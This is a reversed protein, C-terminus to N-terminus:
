STVEEPWALAVPRLAQFDVQTYVFTSNIHRHGFVDAIEKLSHGEALKQTALGHRFARAGLGAEDLGVARLRRKVVMSVADSDTLPPYPAHCALFVQPHVSQARGHKLYAVLSEGVPAMLPLVSQKGRKHARFVVRDRAWDLDDLRLGVVQGARVGYTHLLQLIAYDRLGLPTDREVAELVSQAQDPTLARPPRALSYCRFSPIAHHLPRDILGRDLAFQLFTSLGAKMCRRVSEGKGEAYDLFFQEVSERGLSGLGELTAQPGLWRLFHRVRRRRLILTAPASQRVEEMWALYAELLLAAPGGAGSGGPGHGLGGLYEQFRGVSREVGAARRAGAGRGGPDGRSEHLFAEVTAPELCAGAALGRERLFENLGSVHRM